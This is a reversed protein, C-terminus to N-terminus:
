IRNKGDRFWLILGEVALWLFWPGYEFWTVVFDFYSAGQYATGAVDIGAFNYELWFRLYYALVLGSMAYWARNKAFPLFPVAWMWYWPNQTPSLLWFWALTIFVGQCFRTPDGGQSFRWAVAFALILFLASTAARVILFGALDTQMPIKAQTVPDTTAIRQAIFDVITRRLSDPVVSFWVSPPAPESAGNLQLSPKLNEVGIMFLFDNMEWYKFFTTIGDSPHITKPDTSIQGVGTDLVQARPKPANATGPLMPWLFALTTVVFIITPLVTRQWGFHRLSAVVVLPALVIPFIKAGVAAALLVATAPLRWTNSSAHPKSTQESSARVALSKAFFYVTLTTLFVAIADLHGSNAVEKIVLPCWAYAVSLGIPKGCLKLLKILLIIVGVDFLLLWAKMIRVRNEYSTGAPTSKAALAFVAQSAPPYVTPLHGFHNNLRQLIYHLGEDSDRIKALRRLESNSNSNATLAQNPAYRFPSIGEACVVGDWIYRHLDVEQIPPSFLLTLRFAIAFAFIWFTLKSGQVCRSAAWLALLYLVFAGALLSLTTLIPRKPGPVALKFQPSIWLIAVYLSLSAFGLILLAIFPTSTGGRKSNESTRNTRSGSGLSIM